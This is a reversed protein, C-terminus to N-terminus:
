WMHPEAHLWVTGGQPTYKSANELLNSIVRQIKPGDFAFPALKDNALFYLALGREQFRASWLRCVESLCANMDGEIYQMRLEGTELVSFTLFDQIFHELRKGSSFMDGMVERQRPNLPGLKQSQLLEIYGNLIALPTKLDHAASALANTTKRFRDRLNELEQAVDETAIPARSLPTKESTM